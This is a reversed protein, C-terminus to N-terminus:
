RHERTGDHASALRAAAILQHGAAALMQADGAEAVAAAIGRLCASWLDDINGSRWQVARALAALAAAADEASAPAPAARLLGALEDEDVAPLLGSLAWDVEADLLGDIRDLVTRTWAAAPRSPPERRNEEALLRLLWAAVQPAASPASRALLREMLAGTLLPRLPQHHHTAMAVVGIRNSLARITRAEFLARLPLRVGFRDAIRAALQAALLSHGGLEFFDDDIGPDDCGLIASWLSALATETPTSAPAREKSRAPAAPGPAPLARRDLKGNPMVPLHDLLLIGTPLAAEPLYGALFSRLEAASASRDPRVAVYAAIRADSPDGHALAAADAVAPHRRLAAEIEGLEIRVGRIKVQFDARGLYDVAGDARRRALDGTRYLRGGPEDAFPDPLFRETTLDPRGIYGRAVQIGGIFLEGVAGPVTPQMNADLIHITTNAVPWGIPVTPENWPRRCQWWTVDVAAETPGYLNTVAAPSRAQLKAVLDGPLAEGSCIVHRVSDLAEIDPAAVFLRLMSPVFHLATIGHRRIFAVIEAPDRHAGPEMLVLSAGCMLPAFLEWVSVDFTIPTKQAIRDAPGFGFAEIMWLLRNCIARHDIMVGKPRGTSGSTFLVYALDDPLPMRAPARDAAAPPALLDILLGTRRLPAPLDDAAHGAVVVARPAADEIMAALRHEPADPELPLYAAGARLIGVLAVMLELSRPVCVAVVDGRGIGAAHLRGALGAARRTLQRYSLTREGFVVAAASPTRHAQAAIFGSLTGAPYPVRTDNWGALEDAAVLPLEGIRRDPDDTAAALIRVLTAGWRAITERDFLDTSYEISGQLGDRHQALGVTLDVRANSLALGVTELPDDAPGAPGAAAETGQLVLMAQFLPSYALSRKPAVVEVLREFPLDQHAYADICHGRVQALLDRFSPNGSLDARLVLTNAFLGVLGETETRTRNAVPTGVAIDTSGSLRMLLVSFAALLVMFPMAGSERALRGIGDSERRGIALPEVAGRFSQVAPRPRDAPLDLLPPLGALRGSWYSLSAGLRQDTFTRRQWAAYDGYQIPLPPLAAGALLAAAESLLIDLGWGDTLIHHLCFVLYRRRSDWVIVDARWPPRTELDFATGVIRGLAETMAAGREPEPTRRLDITEARVPVPPAVKQTPSDPGAQFTTRLTEHREALRTLAADVARAPVDGALPLVAPMNYVTGGPHLQQLFWLREQSFSLPIPVTPSRPGIPADPTAAKQRATLKKELLARQAPSLREIRASLDM